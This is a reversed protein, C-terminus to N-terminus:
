RFDPWAGVCDPAIPAGQFNDNPLCAEPGARPAPQPAELAQKGQEVTKNEKEFASPEYFDDNLVYGTTLSVGNCTINPSSTGTVDFDRLFYFATRTGTPANNTCDRAALVVTASVDFVPDAKKQWTSTIIAPFIPPHSDTPIDTTCEHAFDVSVTGLMPRECPDGGAFETMRSVMDGSLFPQPAGCAVLVLAAVLITSFASIRGM